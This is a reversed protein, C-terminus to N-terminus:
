CAQETQVLAYVAEVVDEVTRIGKFDSPQIKHGTLENLKVAMDVADISDIDLDQYLHSQMTVDAPEIEFLEALIAKLQEYISEKTYMSALPENSKSAAAALNGSAM